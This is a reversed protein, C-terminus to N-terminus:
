TQARPELMARLNAAFRAMQKASADRITKEALMGDVITVRSYVCVNTHSGLQVLGIEIRADGAPRGKADRARNSLVVRRAGADRELVRLTGLYNRRIPGIQAKMAVEYVDAGSRQLVKAGPVCPVVREVDAVAAFVDDLAARVSFSNDFQM